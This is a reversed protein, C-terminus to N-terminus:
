ARRSRRLAPLGLLGLLALSSPEPVVAIRNATGSSLTVTGNQSNAYSYVVDFNGGLASQFFAKYTQGNPATSNTVDTGGTVGGTPLTGGFDLAVITSGTNTGAFAYKASGTNTGIITPVYNTGNGPIVVGGTTTGANTISVNTGSVVPAITATSPIVATPNETSATSTNPIGGAAYQLGPAPDTDRMLGFSATTGNLSATISGGASPVLGSYTGNFLVVPSLSNVGTTPFTKTGLVTAGDSDYIYGFPTVGPMGVGIIVLNTDTINQTASINYINVNGTAPATVTNAPMTTGQAIGGLGFGSSVPGNGASDYTNPVNAVGLPNRRSGSAGSTAGGITLGTAALNFNVAYLGAVTQGPFQPNAAVATNTIAATVQFTGTTSTTPTVTVNLTVVAASAVQAAVAAAAIGFISALKRTMANEM